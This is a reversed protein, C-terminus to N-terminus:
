QTKQRAHSRNARASGAGSQDSRRKLENRAAARDEIPGRIALYSLEAADLDRVDCGAWKGTLIRGLDANEM